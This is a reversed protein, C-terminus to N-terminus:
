DACCAAAVTQSTGVYDAGQQKFRQVSFLVRYPYDGLQEREIMMDIEALVKYRDKGHIM